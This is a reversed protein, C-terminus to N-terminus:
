QKQASFKIQPRNSLIMTTAGVFFAIHTHTSSHTYGFCEEITIDYQVPIASICIAFFLFFIKLANFLFFTFPSVSFVSMLSYSLFLNYFLHFNEYVVVYLVSVYNSENSYDLMRVCACWIFSLLFLAAYPLRPFFAVCQM